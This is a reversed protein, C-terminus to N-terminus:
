LLAEQRPRSPLPPRDRHEAGDLLKGGSDPGPGAYRMWAADPPSFAAGNELRNGRPTIWCRPRGDGFSWEGGQGPESPTWSGWQKFWFPIGLDACADRLERAWDPHMPRVHRGGSEGGAILWDIGSLDLPPADARQRGGSQAGDGRAARGMGAPTEPATKDGGGGLLSGLLPECSLFRTAAPTARLVDARRAYRANEISVGLWLNPIAHDDTRVPGVAPLRERVRELILSRMREPRKTLVQFTRETTEEIVDLVRHVFEDPVDEHFLDALSCVFIPDAIRAPHLAHRRELREPHLRVGTTVVDGVRAFVRGERRFPPTRDIYCNACGPSIKTCGTVVNWTGGTWGIKSTQAV